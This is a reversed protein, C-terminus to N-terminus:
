VTFITLFFCATFDMLLPEFFAEKDRAVISNDTAGGRWKETEDDVPNLKATEAMHGLGSEVVNLEQPQYAELVVM